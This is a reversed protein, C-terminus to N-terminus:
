RGKCKSLIADVENDMSNLPIVEVGDSNIYFLSMIIDDRHVDFYKEKTLLTKYVNLQLSYHVYNCDDLHNLFTLGKQWQNSRKIQKNTKWDLLCVDGKSNYMLLDITGSIGHQPSFIIKEAEIFKFNKLKDDIFTKIHGFYLEEKENNPLPLKEGKLYMEAYLHCQTGFVGAIRAEEAWEAILEEPTKGKKIAVKKAIEESNFEPFM